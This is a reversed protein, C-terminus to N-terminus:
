SASSNRRDLTTRTNERRGSKQPMRRHGILSRYSGRRRGIPRAISSILCMPPLGSGRLPADILRDFRARVDDPLESGDGKTVKNIPVEALCVRHAQDREGEVSVRIGGKERSPMFTMFTASAIVTPMLRKSYCDCLRTKRATVSWCWHASVCGIRSLARQGATESTLTALIPV